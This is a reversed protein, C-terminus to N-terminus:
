EIVIRACRRIAKIFEEISDDAILIENKGQKIEIDSNWRRLLIAAEGEDLQWFIISRKEVSELM